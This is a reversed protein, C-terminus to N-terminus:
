RITKKERVWTGLVDGPKYETWTDLDNSHLISTNNEQDPLERRSSKGYVTYTIPPYEETNFVIIFKDTEALYWWPAIQTFPKVLVNGIDLNPDPRYLFSDNTAADVFWWGDFGYALATLYSLTADSAAQEWTTANRKYSLCGIKVGLSAQYNKAKNYKELAAYIDTLYGSNNVLFSELLVWDAAGLHTADGTPNHVPDVVNGLVDNILNGNAFCKLGKSHVYDVIENQRARTEEYDYGFRDLFVGYWGEAAIRDVVAKLTAMEPLPTGGMANYGFIKVNSKIADTVYKERAALLGPEDCVLYPFKNLTEVSHAPSGQDGINSLNGYMFALLDLKLKGQPLTLVTPTYICEPKSFAEGTENTETKTLDIVEALKFHGKGIRNRLMMYPYAWQVTKGANSHLTISFQWWPFKGTPLKISGSTYELTDDHHRIDGYIEWGNGVSGPVDEARVFARFLIDGVTSQNPYVIAALYQNACNTNNITAIEHESFIVEGCVNWDLVNKSCAATPTKVLDTGNKRTNVYVSNKDDYLFVIKSM